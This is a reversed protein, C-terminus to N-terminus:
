LEEDDLEDEDAYDQPYHEQQLYKSVEMYTFPDCIKIKGDCELYLVLGIVAPEAPAYVKYKGYDGVYKVKLGDIEM